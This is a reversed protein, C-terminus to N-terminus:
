RSLRKLDALWIGTRPQRGIIKEVDSEWQEIVAIVKRAEAKLRSNEQKAERLNVMEIPDTVSVEKNTQRPAAPISLQKIGTLM